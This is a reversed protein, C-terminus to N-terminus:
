FPSNKEKDASVKIYEAMYELADEISNQWLHWNHGGDVVRLAVQRPQYDYLLRFLQSLHWAILFRDHDGSSLYLPVVIKKRKYSDWTAPYNLKQWIALDFHGDKQFQAIRKAASSPPPGPVYIAPSLAAAAAFLEPHKFVANITGYGGASVGAILRGGRIARSRFRTDIYPILEKILVEEGPEQHGDVWWSSGGGPMVILVPPIKQEEILRDVRLQIQGRILWDTENGGNGHLLYLVPYKQSGTEYGDPLYVSFPYDTGLVQSRMKSFLVKSAATVTLPFVLLLFLLATVSRVAKFIEKSM